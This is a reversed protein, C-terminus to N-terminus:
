AMVDVLGARALTPLAQYSTPRTPQFRYTPPEDLWRPPQWQDASGGREQMVDFRGLSVGADELRQRLSEM